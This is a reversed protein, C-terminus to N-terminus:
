KIVTWCKSKGKMEVPYEKGCKKCFAKVGEETLYVIPLM